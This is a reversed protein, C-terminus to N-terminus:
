TKPDRASSAPLNSLVVARCRWDFMVNPAPSGDANWTFATMQVDPVFSPDPGQQILSYTMTRFIPSESLPTAVVNIPEGFAWLVGQPCVVDSVQFVRKGDALTSSVGTAELLHVISCDKSPFPYIRRWCAQASEDQFFIAYSGAPYFFNIHREVGPDIEHGVITEIQKKISAIEAPQNPKKVMNVGQRPTGSM